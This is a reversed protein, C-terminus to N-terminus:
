FLSRQDSIYHIGEILTLIEFKEQAQPISQIDTVDYCIHDTNPGLQQACFDVGIAKKPSYNKKLYEIGGGRGCCLDLISLDSLDSLGLMNTVCYDYLQYQRINNQDPMEIFNKPVDGSKTIWAYGLNQCTVKDDQAGNTFNVVKQWYEYIFKARRENSLVKQGYRIGM